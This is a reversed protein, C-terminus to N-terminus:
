ARNGGTLKQFAYRVTRKLGNHNYYFKLKNLFSYSHWDSKEDLYKIKSTKPAKELAKHIEEQQICLYRRLADLDYSIFEFCVPVKAAISWWFGSFLGQPDNWPMEGSYVMVPKWAADAQYSGRTKKRDFVEPPVMVGTVTMYYWPVYGLQAKLLAHLLGLANHGGKMKERAQEFIKHRRLSACNLVAFSPNVKKDQKTVDYDELPAGVVYFDDVSCTRFFESIDKLIISNEEMYICKNTGSLLESLILPYYERSIETHIFRIECNSYEKELFCFKYKVIAEAKSNGLLYIIYHSDSNKNALLSMVSVALAFQNEEDVPLAIPVTVPDAIFSIPVVKYKLEKQQMLRYIYVGTLRESIFLRKERIDVRKEFEELIGFMWECYDFFIEKSFIFMNCFNSYDGSLYEKAYKRYDPHQEYLIEFALDIDEKRHNELYHQYVNKVKGIHAVFDCGKLLKQLKEESYNIEEFYHEMDLKDFPIVDIEGEHLVFHRRYHMLGIFDPNGLEDYNKWAWYLCTMENYSSNKKSINKGTDDGIMHNMMWQYNQSKHDMRERALARGVHIPTLISDKLLQAPRHYCILLKINM